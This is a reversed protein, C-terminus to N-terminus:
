ARDIRSLHDTDFVDMGNLFSLNGTRHRAPLCRALCHALGGWAHLATASDGTGAVLSGLPFIIIFLLIAILLALTGFMQNGLASLAQAVPLTELPFVVRKVLNPPFSPPQRSNCLKRFCPGRCFGVSSISRM